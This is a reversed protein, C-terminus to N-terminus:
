LRVCVTVHADYIAWQRLRAEHLKVALLKDINYGSDQCCANNNM